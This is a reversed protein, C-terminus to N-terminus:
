VNHDIPSSSVLKSHQNINKLVYKDIWPEFKYCQQCARYIFLLNNPIGQVHFGNEFTGNPVGLGVNDSGLVLLHNGDSVYIKHHTNKKTDYYSFLSTLSIMHNSAGFYM